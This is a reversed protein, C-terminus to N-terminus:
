LKRRKRAKRHVDRIAATTDPAFHCHIMQFLSARRKNVGRVLKSQSYVPLPHCVSVIEWTIACEYLKGPKVKARSRLSPFSAFSFHSSLLLECFAHSQWITIKNEKDIAGWEWINKQRSNANFNSSVAAYVSCSGIHAKRKWLDNYFLHNYFEETTAKKNGRSAKLLLWAEVFNM